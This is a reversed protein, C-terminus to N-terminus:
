QQAVKLMLDDQDPYEFPGPAPNSKSRLKGFYDVDISVLSGDAEEYPLDPISARGLLASTVLKRPETGIWAREMRIELYLGDEKAILRLGPDIDANVLPHQEFRSPRAGDLFVNGEMMMPLPVKDYVSLDARRVFVNNYFRNDGPPNDHFGAIATSHAKLFPTQRSDYPLLELAGSFLNHAYAGGQSRDRLSLSSLFINDDFIFPGHDVEVFV